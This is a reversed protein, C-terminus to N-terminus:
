VRVNLTLADISYAEELGFPGIRTRCLASLYAGVGLQQGFDRVLSRIYTGKGCVIKFQIRPLEIATLEFSRVFVERPTLLPMKGQRASQYARAGQTKVASYAPPVQTIPGVFATVQQCITDIALHDYATESDFATELDISPTTKGLVMEGVYVKEMSQYHSITKTKSGTCLLLLGTALPDLTGAHGMKKVSLASRLKKIVDFSTWHLPKDVALVAGANWHLSDLATSGGSAEPPKQTTLSPITHQM